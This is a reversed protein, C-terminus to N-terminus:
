SNAVIREVGYIAGYVSANSRELLVSTNSVLKSLQFYNQQMNNLYVRTNINNGMSLQLISTPMIQYASYNNNDDWAVVMCIYKFHAISESLTYEFTSSSPSGRWLQTCEKLNTLNSKIEACYEGLTKTDWETEDFAHPTDIATNCVRLQNSELCTDGVAYTGAVPDYEDSISNKDRADLENIAKSITKQETNLPDTGVRAWIEPTAESNPYDPIFRNANNMKEEESLDQYDEYSMQEDKPIIIEQSYGNDGSFIFGDETLEITYTIGLKKALIKKTTANEINDLALYDGTGFSQVEQLEVIRKEGDAM